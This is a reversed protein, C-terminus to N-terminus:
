SIAICRDAEDKWFAPCQQRVDLEAICGTDLSKGPSAASTLSMELCCDLRYSRPSVWHQLMQLTMMVYDSM